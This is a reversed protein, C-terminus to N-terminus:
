HLNWDLFFFLHCTVLWLWREWIHNLLHRTLATFIYSKDSKDHRAEWRRTVLISTDLQHLWSAENGPSNRPEMEGEWVPCAPRGQSQQQHWPSNPSPSRDPPVTKAVATANCCLCGVWCSLEMFSELVFICTPKVTCPKLLDMPVCKSCSPMGVFLMRWM